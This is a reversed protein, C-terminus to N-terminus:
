MCRGNSQEIRCNTPRKSNELFFKIVKFPRRIYRTSALLGEMQGERMSSDDLANQGNSPCSSCQIEQRLVEHLLRVM